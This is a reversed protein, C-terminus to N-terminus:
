IWTCAQRRNLVSYRRQLVIVFLLPIPCTEYVEADSDILERFVGGFAFSRIYEPTTSRQVYREGEASLEVVTENDDFKARHKALGEIAADILLEIIKFMVSIRKCCFLMIERKELPRASEASYFRELKDKTPADIFGQSRRIVTESPKEVML